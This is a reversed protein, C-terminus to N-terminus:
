AIFIGNIANIWYGLEEKAMEVDTLEKEPHAIYQNRFANVREVKTYLDSDSEGGFHDKISGLVGSFGKEGRLGFDLCFALLGMPWLGSRYVLTKKLNAANKRLIGQQKAPMNGFYPSFFDDKQVPNVPVDDQLRRIILGRAAEDIAGLLPQFAPAFNQGKKKEFFYYLNVASEISKKYRSPLKVLIKSPLFQDIGTEIATKDTTYLSLEAQPNNLEALLEKLAPQCARALDEIRDAESREFVGQPIFLYNWKHGNTASQCWAMAARAKVAVDIDVKGKTEILYYDGKSTKTFFDPTYFALRSGQSLYDIRLSQPGANKAFATVDSASDCFKAFGLELSRNCPVLNFLTKQAAIVPRNESHTVQFPKWDFLSIDGPVKKRKESSVTHKRIPPVFVARVHERVDSAGLRNVLRQDFVTLKENFLIKEFFEQVLPALVSHTGRLKCIYELEKVYFSIAGAGTGLLPLDIKMKEIIEETILHRGEYDIKTKIEAGIPLPSYLKFGEKIEDITLGELKPITRHAATLQPIRIDLKDHDKSPDPFISVTTRPVKKIDVIEIPLGEQALEKQYLGAFAPHEVITVLEHAQGPPTMRRLGRGLTQEPLIDAKSSYPRLPVITTVNRVDWGERLMLVSVICQYPSSNQDLDRSLKRLTKLDEDSIEKESEVFVEYADKGRGKKKIKGKLNTHLNITRGNLEKFIEDTNLRSAIDDAAKTDECMVFMLSKKGSEQWEAKSERWREYGLRLHQEFKYAANDSPLEKLKGGSGIIPTKVIGADVAEGLPSDCIIHKFLQGKNDKPTASFDLQAVLGGGTKKRITEHLFGIAENWASDPDWVHHAEDNLVMVNRHSTIRERLAEGTDLASGKSVAPGMFDFYEEDKKKRRKSADYLRHINTLYIVGGTSAGSAEDQLVVSMNWDGRWEPPILPDCDAGDFIRGNVFDEKLREFVTLNPAVVVFHRAMPSDSERLAHFYSWVIALSMIKTKGAGTAVKFAFRSWADEEETIGLAGIEADPGGFEGTIQSLTHLGREEKLYILTELAERQCFYYKFEYEEGAPSIKRHSRHFWHELLHKTTDSVSGYYAERWDKVASRLNQAIVIQSPRRHKIVKAPQGPQDAKARHAIPEEWTQFLPELAAANIALKEDMM